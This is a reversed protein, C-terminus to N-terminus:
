FLIAEGLILRHGRREVRELGRDGRARDEGHRIKGLREDDLAVGRRMPEAHHENLIAVRNCEEAAGDCGAMAGEGSILPLEDAEDVGDTM